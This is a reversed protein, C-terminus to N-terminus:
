GLCLCALRLSDEYGCIDRLRWVGLMELYPFTWQGRMGLSTWAEHSALGM